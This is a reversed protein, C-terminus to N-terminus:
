HSMGSVSAPHLLSFFSALPLLPVLAPAGTLPHQAGTTSGIRRHLALGLGAGGGGVEGGEWGEGGREWAAGKEKKIEECCMEFAVWQSPFFLGELLIM